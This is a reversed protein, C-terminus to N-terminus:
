YEKKKWNFVGNNVNNLLYNLIFKKRGEAFYNKVDRSSSFGGSNSSFGCLHTM